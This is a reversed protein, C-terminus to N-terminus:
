FPFCMSLFRMLHSLLQPVPSVSLHPFTRTAGGTVTPVTPHSCIRLPENPLLPIQFPDTRHSGAPTQSDPHRRGAISHSHTPTGKVFGDPM